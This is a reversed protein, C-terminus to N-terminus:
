SDDVSHQALQPKKPATAHCLLVKMRSSINELFLRM